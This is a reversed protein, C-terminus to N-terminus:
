VGKDPKEEAQCPSPMDTAAPLARRPGLHIQDLVREKIGLM